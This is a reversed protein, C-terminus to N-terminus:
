QIWRSYVGTLDVQGLIHGKLASVVKTSDTDKPLNLKSDLAYLTFVYTHADGKPPCPGSYVAKDYNNKAITAGAPTPAGEALETISKPINFLAWHYFTGGPADADKMVLAFSETKPPINTWSFQPSVDKGDCTYLTPMALKDLFGNTALTMTSEPKAATDDAFVPTAILLMTSLFCFLSKNM